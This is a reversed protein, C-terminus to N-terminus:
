LAGNPLPHPPSCLPLSILWQPGGQHEGIELAQSIELGCMYNLKPKKIIRNIIKIRM